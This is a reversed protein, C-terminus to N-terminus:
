QLLERTRSEPTSDFPRAGYEFLIHEVHEVPDFGVAHPDDQYTHDGGSYLM